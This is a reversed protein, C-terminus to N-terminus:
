GQGYEELSLGQWCTESIFEFFSLFSKNIAEPLASSFVIGFGSVYILIKFNLISRKIVGLYIKRFM